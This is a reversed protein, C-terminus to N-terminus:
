LYYYHNFYLQLTLVKLKIFSSAKGIRGSFYEDLDHCAADSSYSFELFIYPYFNIHKYVHMCMFTHPHTHTFTHLYMSCIEDLCYGPTPKEDDSTAKNLM